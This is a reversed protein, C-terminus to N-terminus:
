FILRSYFFHVYVVIIANEEEGVKPRSADGTVYILNDDEEEISSEMSHKM